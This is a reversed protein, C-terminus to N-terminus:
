LYVNPVILECSVNSSDTQTSGQVSQHLVKVRYVSSEAACHTSPKTRSSIFPAPRHGRPLGALLHSSNIPVKNLWGNLTTLSLCVCLYVCVILKFHQCAMPYQKYYLLRCIQAMHARRVNTLSSGTLIGATESLAYCLILVEESGVVTVPIKIVALTQPNTTFRCSDIIGGRVSFGFSVNRNYYCIIRITGTNIYCTQLSHFYSRFKLFQSLFLAQNLRVSICKTRFCVSLSNTM